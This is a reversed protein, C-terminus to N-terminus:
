ALAYPGDLPVIRRAHTAAPCHRVSRLREVAAAQQGALVADTAKRTPGAVTEGLHFGGSLCNGGAARCQSLASREASARSSHNWAYGAANRRCNREVEAVSLAAWQDPPASVRVSFRQAVTLGAPDRATVTITVAGSTFGRVGTVVLDGGSIRVTAFDTANSSATITLRDGDPDSFAESIRAYRLTGGQQVTGDTLRQAVVPASNTTNGGGGDGPPPTITMEGNGTGGGNDSDNRSGGGDSGGGGGGGCAALSIALLIGFTASIPHRATTM